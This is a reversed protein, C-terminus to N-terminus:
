RPPPLPPHSKAMGIWAVIGIGLIVWGLIDYKLDSEKKKKKPAKKRVPSTTEQSAQQHAMHIQIEQRLEPAKSVTDLSMLYMDNGPDLEVAQEFCQNAKEFCVLAVQENPTFFGQQIHANGLLFLTAHRGPDAELAQELKSIAEKVMDEPNKQFASLNLLASGWKTLNDVDRPNAACALEASQREQEFLVLRDLDSLQLDM